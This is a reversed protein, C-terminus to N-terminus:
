ENIQNMQRIKKVSETISNCTNNEVFTIHKLTKYHKKLGVVQIISGCICTIPSMKKIILYQYEKIYKKM